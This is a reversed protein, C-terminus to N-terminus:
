QPTEFLEVIRDINAESFRERAFVSAREAIQMRLPANDILRELTQRMREYDGNACCGYKDDTFVGDPNVSLSIPVTQRLWAQIFTNPFGEFLSTNVLVHAGALLENVTGNPLGGLYRLNPLAQIQRQLSEWQRPKMQCAGVMSFEVDSRHRFDHALRVFLEPQKLPKLNAIWCVSLRQASKAIREKPLSHFNPIHIADNRGFHRQLLQAQERQQVIVADAHHAGYGIAWRNAQEFPSRLSLRWPLPTLNRDSAVHWVMRSGNRRAYHTAVGTHICAVRQYIVDPRLRNLLRWLGPPDFIFIGSVDRHPALRHLTYGDAVYAAGAERAIFHIDFRGLKLLRDVLMRVQMEAGGAHASWHM